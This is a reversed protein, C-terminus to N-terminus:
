KRPSLPNLLEQSTMKSLAIKAPGSGSQELNVGVRLAKLGNIGQTEELDLHELSDTLLGEAQLFQIYELYEDLERQQSYVIAIAGPQTLREESDKLHVKDIRKKIIEYRINYAGDVDFKREKRRFSITLPISHALVLQTTQMPLPLKKLLGHTLRAAKALLTIQWLKLNKVYIENFPYDPALSQGVYVNFEIGDTVYREFYHPFLQQAASQEGDMFRDLVDNIRTISDEYDKRHQYIVARQPDLLSFYADVEKKLDAQVLVLHKFLSDVDHQLFDYITMEADSLLQDSTTNIFEDIKFLYEKLLPFNLRAAAAALVQRAARLQELIDLQIANTREVSSNRVDIAGYLPYVDEFTIAGMKVADHVQRNNIYQFATETFKWEVASQVATFHEKITKNIQLELNEMSKEMALSFLPLATQLKSLHSFKLRDAENSGIELLGIVTGDEKALPCIILSKFGTELYYNLLAASNGKQHNLNQYLVPYNTKGFLQQCLRILTKSNGPAQEHRFLLSNKYQSEAYLYQGNIKLFPTLGITIDHLELLTEIHSQLESFAAADASSKFANLTNKLEAMVEDDTVDAVDIVVIGEFQFKSLPLIQLLKDTDLSRQPSLPPLKFEGDICIVEVFQANLKLELYRIIGTDENTFPHISSAIAPVDFRYLKKLIVNFALNLMAKNIDARTENDPLRIINNERNLFLDRFPASAYITEHRFPFSIAYLGENATTSPPFITSLLTEILASNESFVGPNDTSQLLQPNAEIDNLLGEYLRRAGPRNETVMKKLVAVLPRISLLSNYHQHMQALKTTENIM